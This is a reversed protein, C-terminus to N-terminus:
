RELESWVFGGVVRRGGWCLRRHFLGRHASLSASICLDSVRVLWGVSATLAKLRKKKGWFNQTFDSDVGANRLLFRLKTRLIAGFRKNWSLLICKSYVNFKGSFAYIKLQLRDPPMFMRSNPHLHPVKHNKLRGLAFFVWKWGWIQDIQGM